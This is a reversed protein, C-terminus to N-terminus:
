FLLYRVPIIDQDGEDIPSGGRSDWGDIDQEDGGGGEDEIEEDENVPFFLVAANSAHM